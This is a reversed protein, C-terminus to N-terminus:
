YGSKAYVEYHVYAAHVRRLQDLLKVRQGGQPGPSNALHLYLWLEFCPHSFVVNVGCRVARDHVRVLEDEPNDDRDFFVWIPLETSDPAPQSNGRVQAVRPQEDALERAKTEAADLLRTPTMGKARDVDINLHFGLDSGFRSNLYSLYDYETGGEVYTYIDRRRRDRGVRRRGPVRGQPAGRKQTM